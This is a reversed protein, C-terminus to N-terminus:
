DSFHDQWWAKLEDPKLTDSAALGWINGKRRDWYLTTGTASSSRYTDLSGGQWTGQERTYGQAAEVYTAILERLQDLPLLDSDARGVTVQVGNRFTCTASGPVEAGLPSNACSTIDAYRPRLYDRVQPDPFYKDFNGDDSSGTGSTTGSGAGNASNAKPHTATNRGAAAGPGGGVAFVLVLAVAVVVAVAGGGAIL